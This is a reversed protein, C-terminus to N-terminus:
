VNLSTLLLTSSSVDHKLTELPKAWGDDNDESGNSDSNDESEMWMLDVHNDQLHLCSVVMVEDENQDPELLAKHFYHQSITMQQM